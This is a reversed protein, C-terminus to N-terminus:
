KSNSPAPRSPVTRLGDIDVSRVWSTARVLRSKARDCQTASGCKLTVTLQQPSIATVPSIPVRLTRRLRKTVRVLDPAPEVLGVILRLEVPTAQADIGVMAPLLALLGRLWWRPKM